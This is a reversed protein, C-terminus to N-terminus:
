RMQSKWWKVLANSKEQESAVRREKGLIEELKAGTIVLVAENLLFTGKELKEMIFPLADKGMKVIQRYPENNTYDKPRSSVQIKPDQIVKEWEAFLADFRQRTREQDNKMILSGEM